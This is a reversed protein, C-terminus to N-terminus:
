VGEVKWVDLEQAVLVHIKRTSPPTQKSQYLCRARKLGHTEIVEHSIFEVPQSLEPTQAVLRLFSERGEDSKFDATTSEWAASAQGARIQELFKDAVPRAVDATAAPAARSCGSLLVAACALFFAIPRRMTNANSMLILLQRM